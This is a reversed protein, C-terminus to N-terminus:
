QTPKAPMPKPPVVRAVEGEGDMVFEEGTSGKRRWRDQLQGFKKKDDPWPMVYAVPGNEQMSWIWVRRQEENWSLGVIEAEAVDRWELQIPKPQGTSEVGAAFAGITLASFAGTAIAKRGAGPLCLWIFVGMAFIIAFALAAFHVIM